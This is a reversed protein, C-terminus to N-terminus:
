SVTGRAAGDPLEHVNRQIRGVARGSAPLLMVPYRPATPIATWKGCSCGMWKQSGGRWLWRGRGPLSKPVPLPRGGAESAAPAGAGAAYARRSRVLGSIPVPLEPICPAAAALGSNGSEWVPPFARGAARWYRPARAWGEAWVRAPGVKREALNRASTAPWMPSPLHRLRRQAGVRQRHRLAGALAISPSGRQRLPLRRGNASPRIEGIRRPWALWACPRGVPKPGYGAEPRLRGGGPRREFASQPKFGDLLDM